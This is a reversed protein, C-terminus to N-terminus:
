RHAPELVRLEDAPGAAAPEVQEDLELTQRLPVERMAVVAILTLLAFPAGLLFTHGIGSGYAQEFVTRVPGPLTALDPLALGGGGGEPRVGIRALGSAVSDTVHTSLLAGLVAVGMAGGLSRFFAVTSSASGMDRQAVTNQVALVLNQMTAGLGMGLLALYGGILWFSTHADLTALLLTGILVLAAGGVVYKKYRGTRSIIRGVIVSSVLLGGVLPLSMLGSITPSKGRSLQFYQSLFVTAGFITIGVFLSAVTALTTNRDRFLRLPIVPEAARSETLVALGLLLLGGVLMLATQASAWPFQHGALSVWILLVSVGAVILSAGLYDVKVDDRRTAPLHLTRQLVVLALVAFPLGVYFCWRWGLWPTDVIVGGLLPGSITALAFVAGLYGSYRGRERPAIMAAMVVQVLATLGGAGIGQLTRAAILWGVSPALGALGSGVVFIVLSLQVLLKRNVLDALKGWVPTSATTALLTSTVVWTYGSEGGGLDGIIRPLANTVVTASLMAVFMGILLGSLAELIQRHTMPPAATAHSVPTATTM